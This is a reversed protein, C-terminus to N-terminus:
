IETANKILQKIEEYTEQVYIKFNSNSCEYHSILESTILLVPTTNIVRLISNVSILDKENCNNETVEIFGKM